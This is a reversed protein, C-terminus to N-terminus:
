CSYLLHFCYLSPSSFSSRLILQYHSTTLIDIVLSKWKYLFTILICSGLFLATWDIGRDGFWVLKLSLQYELISQFLISGFYLFNTSEKGNHSPVCKSISIKASERRAVYVRMSFNQTMEWWTGLSIWSIMSLQSITKWPCRYLLRFVMKKKKRILLWRFVMNADWGNPPMGVM